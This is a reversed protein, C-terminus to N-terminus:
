QAAGQGQHERPGQPGETLTIARTLCLCVADEAVGTEAADIESRFILVGAEDFSFTEPPHAASAASAPCSAPPATWASLASM